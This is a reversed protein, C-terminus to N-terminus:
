LGAEIKRTIKEEFDKICKEEVPAIHVQPTTIGGNRKLHPKELLHTLQYDTKNYITAEVSGFGKEIEMRWGRKYRGKNKTNKKNVPSTNKLEQVGNKAIKEAEEYLVDDVEKSYSGLIDEIDILSSYAMNHLYLLM